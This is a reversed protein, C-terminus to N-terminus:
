CNSSKLLIQSAELSWLQKSSYFLQSENTKNYNYNNNFKKTHKPKSTRNTRDPTYMLKVIIYMHQEIISVTAQTTNM